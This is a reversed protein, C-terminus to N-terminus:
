NSPFYGTQKKQMNHCWLFSQLYPGMGAPEAPSISRRFIYVTFNDDGQMTIRQANTCLSSSVPILAQWLSHLPHWQKHTCFPWRASATCHTSFSSIKGPMDLSCALDSWFYDSLLLLLWWGVTCSPNLFLHLVPRQHKSTINSSADQTALGIVKSTCFFLENVTTYWITRFDHIYSVTPKNTHHWFGDQKDWLVLYRFSIVYTDKNHGWVGVKHDSITHDGSTFIKYRLRANGFM